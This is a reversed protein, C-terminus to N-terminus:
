GALKAASMTPTLKSYHKEIMQVSTGMQKALTHIDMRGEILAFTAYTHRLSYLTRNLKGSADKELGSAKMLKRFTGVFGYPREGAPLAFLWDDRKQALLDDFPIEALQSVRIHLRRIAALADHRAILWRPGTKGSVWIRLYRLDTEADVYWEMHRWKINMAETGHRMGTYLLVEVYDRVLERMDHIKGKM